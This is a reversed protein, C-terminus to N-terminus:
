DFRFCLMTIDDRQPYDGQYEDLTAKFAAGQENMPLRAHRLIMDAFRSNGFGYGLEGGAQDLFGDTALYFTRGPKLGVEANGYEGVRRDGIARRGAPLEELSEGDSYYLAVKAGAYVVLRRGFDVYALGVDMNTALAQQTTDDRLMRRVIGDTRALIAAPDHLGADAIAQEIAAHALMTMLAGPVGHGACDVVGLLCGQETARYVYFDGGVVDRPHWLVAHREDLDAVLQRKPLIAHQILSAYDISDEIKKHAAAMDRNAQQLERTREDVRSELESTHSHIKLAMSRFAASLEGIEDDRDSPLPANYHGAAIAQASKRLQRLPSLVRRDVLWAGGAILLLLLLVAGLAPMLPRLEIVQATRLDVASAVFWQLEPIWTLALLRPEGDLSAEVTTTEGPHERSYRMAQRLANAQDIDDLQGLLSTSLSRGQSTDANLTVLNQDPHVLISGHSDLVMSEVGTKDEEIFQTVFANLSIGSGVIGLPRSGDRVLINFWIKLDGTVASRDVNLHYPADSRLTVYFWEDEPADPKMEYRPAESPPQQDGNSYYRNSAASAAFYSHDSLARQYGAAERFFLERKAPDSEDLLWARTIQSEALRQALALERTVPAFLRERNLQVVNRAYAEGFRNQVGQLAERGVLVTVGIALLFTLLLALLSKGRIGLAAM